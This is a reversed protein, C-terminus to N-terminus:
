RLGVFMLKYCIIFFSHHSNNIYEIIILEEKKVTAYLYTFEDIDEKMEWLDDNEFGFNKLRLNLSYNTLLIYTNSYINKMM